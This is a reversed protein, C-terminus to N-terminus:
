HRALSLVLPVVWLVLAGIVVLLVLGTTGFAIQDLLTMVTSGPGLEARAGDTRAASDASMRMANDTDM